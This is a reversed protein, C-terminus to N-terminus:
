RGYHKDAFDMYQKWDYSTVDHKGTRLHYGIRGRVPQDAAPMEKAPFSEKGLLLDYVPAANKCALFEGRPDAWTDETASAVYVPRPAVLAVLEHQDVPCSNENDNYQKFNECFWHPFSTNIRKVTEGIARRSLAAGGCGSDNSIVIAFREDRAGAWIATKGLRSHGMVAVKAADIQKDTELYDLACSLGWAWASITGWEDAAPRTQGKKYFLPHVGNQFGDNFDPDIDGNYITVLGYGRDIIEEVPWRTTSAGRTAETAKNDKVNAYRSPVWNPNLHIGPDAEISHNGAFNLGMFVPVPGKAKAPLYILLEMAPSDPRDGFRVMVQRRIAKGQLYDGAQELVEFQLNKPKDPCRGYVQEEFQSLIEPRRVERWTKADAVKKGALTTLPDPLQYSPILAEDYNVQAFGPAAILLLAAAGTFMGFPFRKLM